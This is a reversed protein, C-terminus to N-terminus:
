FTSCLLAFYCAKKQLDSTIECYIKRSQRNVYERLFEKWINGTVAGTTPERKSTIAWNLWKKFRCFINSRTSCAKLPSQTGSNWFKAFYEATHCRSQGNKYERLFDKWLDGTVAGTTPERKFTVAWNLWKKFICFIPDKKFTQGNKLSKELFGAQKCDLRVAPKQVASVAANFNDFTDREGKKLQALFDTSFFRNM